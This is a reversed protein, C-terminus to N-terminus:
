GDVAGRRTRLRAWISRARRAPAIETRGAEALVETALAEVEDDPVEIRVAPGEDFASAAPLLDDLDGIIDYGSVALADRTAAARDRV